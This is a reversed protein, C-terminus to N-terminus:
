GLSRLHSVWAPIAHYGLDENIHLMPANREDNDTRVLAVGNEIAQALTEMKVARAIGKGRQGPHSATFGTWVHGRLTPYRLYSVGVLEGDFEAVWYRDESVGPMRLWKLFLEKPDPLAPISRPVDLRAVEILQHLRNLRDPLRCDALTQLRVGLRDMAKRTSRRIALLRGRNAILDLEWIRSRHDPQLGAKLLAEKLWDEDDRAYCEVVLAGEERVTALALEILQATRAPSMLDPTMGVNFRAARVKDDPPWVRHQVTVFGAPRGDVEGIFRREVEHEGPQEWLYRLLVQDVPEDPRMATTIDATLEADGAAVTAPRLHLDSM